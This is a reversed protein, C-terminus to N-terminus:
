KDIFVTKIKYTNEGIKKYAVKLYRYQALFGGTQKIISGRKITIKIQEINIGENRRKYDAHNTLKIRIRM